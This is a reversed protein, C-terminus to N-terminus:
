WSLWSAKFVNGGRGYGILVRNQFELSHLPQQGTTATNSPYPSDQHRTGSRTRMGIRGAFSRLRSGITSPQKDDSSYYPNTDKRPPPPRPMTFEARQVAERAIYAICRLLTPNASNVNIARSISLHSHAHAGAPGRPQRRMFWTQNNTTLIGFRLNNTKLYGYVQSIIKRIDSNSPSRRFVDVLNTNAPINLIWPCKVEIPILLHNDARRFTLDPEGWTGSAAMGFTGGLELVNLKSFINNHVANEVEGEDLCSTAAEFRPEEYTPVTETAMNRAETPFRRWNELRLSRYMRM